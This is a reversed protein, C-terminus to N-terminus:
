FPTLLESTGDIFFSTVALNLRMSPFISAHFHEVAWQGVTSPLSM